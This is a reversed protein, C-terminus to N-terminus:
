RFSVTMFARTSKAFTNSRFGHLYAHTGAISCAEPIKQGVNGSSKEPHVSVEIFV